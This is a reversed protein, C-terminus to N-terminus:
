LSRCPLKILMVIIKLPELYEGAKATHWEWSMVGGPKQSANSICEGLMQPTMYGNSADGPGGPKGINIKNAPVGQAVIEDFSTGPISTADGKFLGDCSEYM